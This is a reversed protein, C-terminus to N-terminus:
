NSPANWILLPHNGKIDEGIWVLKDESPHWASNGIRSWTSWPAVSTWTTGNRAFVILDQAEDSDTPSSYQDGDASVWRGSLCVQPHDASWPLGKVRGTRLEIEEIGYGGDGFMLGKSDPLWEPWLDQGVGDFEWWDFKGKHVFRIRRTVMDMEWLEGAGKHEYADWGCVMIALRTGDPSIRLGAITRGPGSDRPTFPVKARLGKSDWVQIQFDKGGGEVGVYYSGAEPDFAIGYTDVRANPPVPQPVRKMTYSTSFRTWGTADPVWLSGDAAWLFSDTGRDSAKLQAVVKRKLVDVVLIRSHDRGYPAYNLDGVAIRRGDPSWAITRPAGKIPLNGVVVKSPYDPLRKPQYFVRSVGWLIAGLLGSVLLWRSFRSPM